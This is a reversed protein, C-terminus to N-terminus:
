IARRRYDRGKLSVTRCNEFIRSVIKDNLKTVMQPRSLNTTVVLKGRSEDLFMKFQEKFFETYEKEVTGLDDIVVVDSLRMDLIIQRAELDIDERTPQAELFTQALRECAVFCTKMGARMFDSEVMKALSTKGYGCAGSIVLSKYDSKFFDKAAHFAAVDAAAITLKAWPDPITARLSSKEAAVPNKAVWDPCLCMVCEGFDRVSVEGKHNHFHHGKGFHVWHYKWDCTEYTALEEPTLDKFHKRIRSHEIDRIKQYADTRDWIPLGDPGTIQHTQKQLTCSV